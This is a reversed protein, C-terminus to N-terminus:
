PIPPRQKEHRLRVVWLEEDQRYLRYYIHFRSQRLLIRREDASWPSPPGMEPFDALLDLARRLEDEFADARERGRHDILWVRERQIQRAVVPDLIVRM